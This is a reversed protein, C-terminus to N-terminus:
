FFQLPSVSGPAKSRQKTAEMENMAKITNFDIGGFADFNKVMNEAVIPDKAIIPSHRTLVDFYERIQGKRDKLDPNRSMITNFSRDFERQNMTLAVGGGLKKAAAGLLGGLPGMTSAAGAILDFTHQLGEAIGAAKQLQEAAPGTYKHAKMQQTSKHNSIDHAAMPVVFATGIARGPNKATFNVIPAAVSAGVSGVANATAGIGKGIFKAVNWDFNAYKEFVYNYKKELDSATKILSGLSSLEQDKHREAVKVLADCDNNNYRKYGLTTLEHVRKQVEGYEFALKVLTEIVVKQEPSFSEDSAVKEIAPKWDGLMERYRTDSFEVDSIDISAKKEMKGAMSEKVEDFSAVDFIQSGDKEFGMMFAEKNSEEVLRKVQEDNLSRDKAIKTIGEVMSANHRIHNGAIQKAALSLEMGKM